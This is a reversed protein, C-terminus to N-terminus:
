PGDCYVDPPPCWPHPTPGGGGGPNPDCGIEPGPVWDDGCCTVCYGSVIMEGAPTWTVQEATAGPPLEPAEAACAGLALALTTQTLKMPNRERPREPGRM